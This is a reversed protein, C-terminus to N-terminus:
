LLILVALASAALYTGLSGVTYLMGAGSKKATTTAAATGSGVAGTGTGTGTGAGTVEALPPYVTQSPPCAASFVGTGIHTPSPCMFSSPDVCKTLYQVEDIPTVGQVADTKLYVEVTTASVEQGGLDTSIIQVITSIFTAEGGAGITIETVMSGPLETPRIQMSSTYSFSTKTCSAPQTIVVPVYYKTQLLPNSSAPPPVLLGITGSCIETNGYGANQSACWSETPGVFLSTLTYIYTFDNDDLYSTTVVSSSTGTLPGTPVVGILASQTLTGGFVETSYNYYSTMDWAHALGASLLLAGLIRSLAM